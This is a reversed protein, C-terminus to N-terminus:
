DLEALDREVAPREPDAPDLYTLVEDFYERATAVHGLRAEARGLTVLVEAVTSREDLDLRIRLAREGAEVAEQPRGSLLLANALNGTAWAIRLPDDLREFIALAETTRRVGEVPDGLDAFTQGSNLLASGLAPQNGSVRAQEVAALHHHRAREQDELRGYYIGLGSLCVAIRVPDGLERAAALARVHQPEVEALRGTRSYLSGLGQCAHYIAWPDETRLACIVGREAIATWDDWEQRLDFYDWLMRSLHWGHVPLGATVAEEMLAGFTRLHQDFWAMAAHRDAFRRGVSGRFAAQLDFDNAGPVLQHGNHVTVVYWDLLRARAADLDPAEVSAREQLYDCILDHFDYAGYAPETLLHVATLRDLTARTGPEPKGLVAAATDANFPGTPLVSLLLLSRLDAPELQDCSWSLVARLDTEAEESGLVSLTDQRGQLDAAIVALSERPYRTVREGILRLALPSLACLQLLAGVAAPEAGIRGAGVIASLLETGESRTLNGLELATATERVQLGRMRNRSTVLVDAGSGPLLPRVQRADLANDLLVFLRRGVTRSRLLASREDLTSPILEEPVGLSRLLMWCAVEPQLPPEPGFGRLDLHLLGDPYREAAHHAWHLALASKGIGAPGHVLALGSGTGDFAQDLAGLAAQRGVFSGPARPLQYASRDAAQGTLLQQHLDRLPQSPDTGLEEALLRRVTEYSELAEAQRGQKALAAILRLWLSERLPHSRTLEALEATLPALRDAPGARSELDFRLELLGLYQEQLMPAYTTRLEESGCDVLPDGRWLEVAATCAQRSETAGAQRCLSLFERADVAVEDALRYGSPGTLLVDKGLSGRLRAVTNQLASRTQPKGNYQLLAMLREADVWGDALALTALLSRQQRATVAVTGADRSVTLPGLVAVRLRTRM